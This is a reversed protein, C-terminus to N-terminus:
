YKNNKGWEVILAHFENFTKTKQALSLDAFSEHVTHQLLHYEKKHPIKDASIIDFDKFLRKTYADVVFIPLNYAYLLISDATEFGVGHVNLLEERVKNINKLVVDTCSPSSRTAVNHLNAIHRDNETFWRAVSKLKISKQNYYGAPRIKESLDRENAELIADPSALNSDLLNDLAKEVNKWNTNQTLIAGIVVEFRQCPKKPYNFINKHYGNEDFGKKGALSRIPWWGQPGYKRFLSDYLQLVKRQRTDSISM